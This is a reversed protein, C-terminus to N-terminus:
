PDSEIVVREAGWIPPKMAHQLGKCWASVMQGERITAEAGNRRQVKVAQGVRVYMHPHPGESRREWANQESEPTDPPPPLCRILFMLYGDGNPFEGVRAQEVRGYLEPLRTQAQFPRWIRPVFWIANSAVLIALILVLYLWRKKM